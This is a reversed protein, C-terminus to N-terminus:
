SLYLYFRAGNLLLLLLFLLLLLLLLLPLLIEQIATVISAALNVSASIAVQANAARVTIIKKKMYTANNNSALEMSVIKATASPTAM